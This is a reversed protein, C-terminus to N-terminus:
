LFGLHDPFFRSGPQRVAGAPGNQRRSGALKRDWRLRMDAQERRMQSRMNGIAKGISQTTAPDGEFLSIRRAEALPTLADDPRELDFLRRALRLEVAAARVRTM